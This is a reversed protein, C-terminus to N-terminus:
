TKDDLLDAEETEATEGTGTITTIRISETEQTVITEQTTGITGGEEVSKVATVLTPVTHVVLTASGRTIVGVQLTDAGLALLLAEVSHHNSERSPLKSALLSSLFKTPISSDKKLQTSSTRQSPRRRRSDISRESTSSMRINLCASEQSMHRAM